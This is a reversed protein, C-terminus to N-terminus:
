EAQLGDIFCGGGGGGSGGGSVLGGPPAPPQELDAPADVAPEDYDPGTGGEPFFIRGTNPTLKKIWGGQGVKLQTAAQYRGDLYVWFVQQTISNAPDLLYYHAGGLDEVVLDAVNVPFQFPNGVQQWGPELDYAYGQLGFPGTETATAAGKFTLTLPYRSLIWAADGPKGPDDFPYERYQNTDVDWFGIRCRTPDYSGIQSGIMVSPRPDVPELPISFILYEAATTGAPINLSVEELSGADSFSAIVSKAADVLVSAPNDTGSLDGEWALFSFGASPAATLSVDTPTSFGEVCDGPCDIGTGTVRGGGEPSVTVTIRYPTQEYCGMDFGSGIPRTFGDKDMTAGDGASPPIADVCPSGSELRYDAALLPDTQLDHSGLTAGFADGPTNDWLCNYDSQITGDVNYMGYEGWGTIINYRVTPQALAGANSIGAKNGGAITNHEIAPTSSAVADLFIGYESVGSSDYILNNTIEPSAGSSPALIKIHYYNDRLENRFIQPSNNDVYIGSFNASGYHGHINNSYIYNDPGATSQIEIGKYQPHAADGSAYIENGHIGHGESGGQLVLGGGVGPSGSDGNDWLVLGTLTGNFANDVSVGAFPFRRIELGSISVDDAQVLLGELWVANGSGDLVATGTAPGTITLGDRTISLITDTEGNAVNYTGPQVHLNYIGALGSNIKDLAHHLTKWPFAAAGSGADSGAAIDVYYDGPTLPDYFEDAGIDVVGVVRPDGDIDTTPTYPVVETGADVCPSTSEIHYYSDAAVFLPNQTINGNSGAYGAQEVDCNTLTITGGGSIFTDKNAAASSLNGWLICSYLSTTGSSAQCIGGGSTSGGGNGTITCNVFIPSSAFVYVGGGNIAFASTNASIICNRFIPTGGGLVGIGAGLNNTTNGTIRCNYVMPTTGDALFGGGVNGGGAANGGTITFGDLSASTAGIVTHLAGDGNIITENTIWDRQYFDTETGNFGGYLYVNARMTISEVYTGAMVWIDDFPSSMTLATGIDTYGTAWSLGNNPPSAMPNVHIIASSASPPFLLPLGLMLLLLLGFKRIRLHRENM